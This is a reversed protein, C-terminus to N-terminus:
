YNIENEDDLIYSMFIKQATKDDNSTKDDLDTKKSSIGYDSLDLYLKNYISKLQQPIINEKLYLSIRNFLRLKQTTHKEQIPRNIFLDFICLKYFEIYENEIPKSEALVEVIYFYKIDDIDNTFKLLNYICELNKINFSRESIIFDEIVSHYDIIRTFSFSITYNYFLSKLLDKKFLQIVNENENNIIINENFFTKDYLRLIRQFYETHIYDKEELIKELNNLLKLLLISSFNKHVLFEDSYNNNSLHINAKYLNYGLIQKEFCLFYKEISKNIHNIDIPTQDLHSFYFLYKGQISSLERLFDKSLLINFKVRSITETILELISSTHAVKVIDISNIRSLQIFTKLLIIYSDFTLNFLETNSEFLKKLLSEYFRFVKSISTFNYNYNLDLIKENTGLCLISFITDIEKFFYLSTNNTINELNRKFFSNIQEKLFLNELFLNELDKPINLNEEKINLIYNVLYLFNKDASGILQNENELIDYKEDIINIEHIYKQYELEKKDFLSFVFPNELYESSM